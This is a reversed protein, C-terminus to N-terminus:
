ASAKEYITKGTREIEEIFSNGYDKVKKLEAKSYVLIDLPIKENIDFILNRVFVKKNLRETYTESINDDDLIVLLDIDSHENPSGVAYSGFLVIKYPNSPQLSSILNNLIANINM